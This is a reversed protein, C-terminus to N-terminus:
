QQSASSCCQPQKGQLNSSIVQKSIVEIVYKLTSFSMFFFFDHNSEIDGDELRIRKANRSLPTDDNAKRKEPRHPTSATQDQKKQGKKKSGSVYQNGHFSKASARSENKKNGM